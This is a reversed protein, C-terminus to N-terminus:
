ESRAPKGAMARLEDLKSPDAMVLRLLRDMAVSQATEGREYKSFGNTGGGFINAAEQQSLGLRERVERVENGSLLGDALRRAERIRRENRRIQQPFMPESNCSACEYSELGDVRVDRENHKFTDSYIARKLAAQGCVPCIPIESIMHRTDSSVFISSDGKLGYGLNMADRVVSRNAYAVRQLAALDHVQGFDYRPYDREQTFSTVM